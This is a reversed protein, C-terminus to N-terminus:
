FDVGLITTEGPFIQFAETGNIMKRLSGNEDEYHIQYVIQYTGTLLKSSEFVKVGELNSISEWVFPIKAGPQEIPQIYAFAFYVRQLQKDSRIEFKLNGDMILTHEKECSPNIIALLALGLLSIIRKM